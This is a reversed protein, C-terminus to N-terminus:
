HHRLYGDTGIKYFVLIDQCRLIRGYVIIKNRVEIPNERGQRRSFFPNDPHPEPEPFPLVMREFFYPLNKFHGTLSYTLYLCLRKLFQPM